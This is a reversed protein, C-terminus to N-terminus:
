PDAVSTTVCLYRIAPQDSHATLIASHHERRVVGTLVSYVLGHCPCFPPTAPCSYHLSPFAVCLVSTITFFLYFYPVSVRNIESM